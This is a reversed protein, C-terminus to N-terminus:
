DEDLRANKGWWEVFSAKCKPCIDYDICNSYKFYLKGGNVWIKDNISTDYYEGCRDCKYVRM